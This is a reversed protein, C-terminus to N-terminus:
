EDEVTNWGGSESNEKASEDDLDRLASDAHLTQQGEDQVVIDDDYVSEYYEVRSEWEVDEMAEEPINEAVSGFTHYGGQQSSSAGEIDPRMEAFPKIDLQWKSADTAIDADWPLDTILRISPLMGRLDDEIREYAAYKAECWLTRNRYDDNMGAGPCGGQCVNWYKCGKCGGLDPADGDTYPGPTAKLMDYREVTDDYENGTSDGQLFPVGDGVQSWTKGCGTTEGDGTVIKAAGANFVDCKNNVCNSLQNGMLNDVMDNFPGWNRYEEEQMWEWSQLYVEKLREPDLSIDQGDPVDEYPIAPNFHGHVGNKNLYDIWDLLKELKEDTGANAESLVTIIGLSVDREICMDIADHTAETMKATAKNGGEGDPDASTREGAAKREENLEAPGDCSIGVGVNYKKFMDAHEETMLTGNTQIHSGDHNEYAFEFIQELHEDRVLLPEGGHLGPKTDPYKDDWEELKEMIKDIDYQRDVWEQKRERDPNEYCYTCGLNCGTTASVHIAM